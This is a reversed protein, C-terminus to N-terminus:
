PPAWANASTGITAESRVAVVIAVLRGPRIASCAPASPRRGRRARRAPRAPSPARAPRGSRRRPGRARRQRRRGLREGALEVEAGRTTISHPAACVASRSRRRAQRPGRTSKAPSRTPTPPWRFRVRPSGGSVQSAIRSRRSPARAPGRRGRGRLRAGAGLRDRGGAVYMSVSRSSAAAGPSGRPAPRTRPSSNGSPKWSFTSASQPRPLTRGHVRVARLGVAVPDGVDVVAEYVSREVGLARDLARRARRRGARHELERDAGAPERQREGSRPRSTCPM